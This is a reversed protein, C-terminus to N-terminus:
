KMEMEKLNIEWQQISASDYASEEVVSTDDMHPGVLQIMYWTILIALSTPPEEKLCWFDDIILYQVYHSQWNGHWM